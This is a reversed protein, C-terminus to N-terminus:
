GRGRLLYQTSNRRWRSFFSQRRFRHRHLCYARKFAYTNCVVINKLFSLTLKLIASDIGYFTLRIPPAVAKSSLLFSLSKSYYAYYAFFVCASQHFTLACINLVHSTLSKAALDSMAKGDAKCWYYM